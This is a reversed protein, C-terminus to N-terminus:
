AIKETFYAVNEVQFEIVYWTGEQDLQALAVSVPKVLARYNNSGLTPREGALADGVASVLDLAGLREADTSRLSRAGCVAWFTQMATYLTATQNDPGAFRESRFVLLVAPPQALIKGRQEDFAEHTLPQVRVKSGTLKAKLLAELAAYVEDLRTLEAM